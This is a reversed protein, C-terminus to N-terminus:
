PSPTRPRSNANDIDAAILWRGDVRRLALIFKGYDPKDASGSYAGIIYGTSGDISYALARLALPGGKGTYAQRVADRGRVPVEGSALVFGDETFIKSLEEADKASWHKEYDRLVRDIEPPLAVSPIPSTEAAGAPLAAMALFAFVVLRQRM